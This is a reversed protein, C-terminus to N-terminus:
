VLPHSRYSAVVVEGRRAIGRETLFQEFPDVVFVSHSGAANALPVHLTASDNVWSSSKVPTVGSGGRGTPPCPGENGPPASEPECLGALARGRGV